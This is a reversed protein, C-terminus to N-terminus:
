GGCSEFMNLRNEAFSVLQLAGVGLSSRATLNLCTEPIECHAFKAQCLGRKADLDHSTACSVEDCIGSGGHQGHM